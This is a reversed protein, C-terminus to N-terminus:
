QKLKTSATANLDVCISIGGVLHEKRSIPITLTLTGDDRNIEMDRANIDRIFNVNLRADMTKRLDGDTQDSGDALVSELSHTVTYYDIYAPIIKFGVLAAM